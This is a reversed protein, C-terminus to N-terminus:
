LSHFVLFARLKLRLRFGLEYFNECCYLWPIQVFEDVQTHHYCVGRGLHGFLSLVSVNVFCACFHVIKRYFHHFIGSGVLGLKGDNGWSFDLDFWGTSYLDRIQNM